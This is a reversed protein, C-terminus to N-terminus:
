IEHSGKYTRTIHEDVVEVNDWKEVNGDKTVTQDSKLVPKDQGDKSYEQSTFSSKSDYFTQKWQKHKLGNASVAYGDETLKQRSVPCYRSESSSFDFECGSESEEKTLGSVPWMFSFKETKEKTPVNKFSTKAKSTAQWKESISDSKQM